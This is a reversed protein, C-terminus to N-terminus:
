AGKRRFQSKERAAIGNSATCIGSFAKSAVNRLKSQGHKPLVQFNGALEFRNLRLLHIRQALPTTGKHCVSAVLAKFRGLEIVAIKTALLV